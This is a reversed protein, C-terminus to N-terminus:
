AYSKSHLIFFEVNNSEPLVKGLKLNLYWEKKLWDADTSALSLVTYKASFSIPKIQCNNNLDYDCM